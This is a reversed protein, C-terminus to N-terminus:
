YSIFPTFVWGRKGSETQIYAWNAEVGNWIDYNDSYSIVFVKQGRSLENVKRATLRPNNRVVVDTANCYAVRAGTPIEPTAPPKSVSNTNSPSETNAPPTDKPKVAVTIEQSSTASESVNSGQVEFPWLKHRGENLFGDFLAFAYKGNPLGNQFKLTKMGRKGEIFSAQFPFHKMSGADTVSDLRIFKLDDVRIEASEAYLIFEPKGAVVTLPAGFGSSSTDYLNAVDFKRIESLSKRDREVSFLGLHDPLLQSQLGPRVVILVAVVVGAAIL